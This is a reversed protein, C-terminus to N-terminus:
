CMAVDTPSGQPAQLIADKGQASGVLWKPSARLIQPHRTHSVVETIWPILEHDLQAETRPVVIQRVEFRSLDPKPHSAPKVGM